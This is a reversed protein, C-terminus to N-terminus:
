EPDAAFDQLGPLVTDDRCNAPLAKRVLFFDSGCRWRRVSRGLDTTTNMPTQGDAHMPVFHVYKGDLRNVNQITLRIVGEASTEVKAVHRTTPKDSECGWAGPDPAEELFQYDEAILNKCNNVAMVVETLVARQSYERMEKIAIAALIGIIVVVLMVEIQTFGAQRRKINM